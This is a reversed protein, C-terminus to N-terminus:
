EHRAEVEVAVLDDLEGSTYLLCSVGTLLTSQSRVQLRLSKEGSDRVSSWSTYLLCARSVGPGGLRQAAPPADASGRGAGLPGSGHRPRRLPAPHRSDRICMELRM